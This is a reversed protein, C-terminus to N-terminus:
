ISLDLNTGAVGSVSQTMLEMSDELGQILKDFSATQTDMSSKMVAATATSQVKYNSLSTSMQAIAGIDM